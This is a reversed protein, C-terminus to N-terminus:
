TDLATMLHAPGIFLKIRSGLESRMVQGAVVSMEIQAVTGLNNLMVCLPGKPPVFSGLQSMITEVVEKASTEATAKVRLGPEGHLGLGVEMEDPPLPRATQTGPITCSTFCVGQTRVAAAALVTEQYVQELNLGAAAAAGAIKYVLLSGAIGRAQKFDRHHDGSKLSSAVDDAICVVRIRLQLRSRAEKVASLFNLRTGPNSRVVVLTGAPGTVAELCQAVAYASPAAFVEGCVVATLLGEGIMGVDAPEHGSGGGSIVAVQGNRRRWSKQVLVKTEPYGELLQVDPHTWLYGELADRVIERPDNVFRKLPLSGATQGM